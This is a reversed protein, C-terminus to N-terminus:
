RSSNERLFEFYILVCACTTLKWSGAKSSINMLRCLKAVLCLHGVIAVYEPYSVTIQMRRDAIEIRSISSRNGTFFEFYILVCACTTAKRSGVKSSINMLRCLKAVLCLHGVIAVYEQYSITNQM